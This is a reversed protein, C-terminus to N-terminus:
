LFAALNREKLEHVIRKIAGDDGKKAILLADGAVVVVLDDVGALAAIKIPSAGDSKPVVRVYNGSADLAVVEVPSPSGAGVRELASFSGVDSWRFADGAVVCVKPAKELVAYDFSIAKGRAFAEQFNPDDETREGSVARSAVIPEIVDLTAALEPNYDRLLELYRRAKWVGVGANWYFGGSALFERATEPRPKERFRKVEFVGEEGDIATGREIYGYEPSPATPAIGLTVLREPDDDVLRASKELTARFAADDSIWSDAPLVILTPDSDLRLAELAAWAVCLATDRGTPELLARAPNLPARPASRAVLEAFARGVVVFRADPAVLGDLRDLTAEFLTRGDKLLPLFPKPRANRSEPWLRTGAGGAMVVAFRRACRNSEAVDSLNM